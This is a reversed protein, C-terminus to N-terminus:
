NSTLAHPPPHYLTYQNRGNKKATYMAEDAKHLLDSMETGDRPFLSIGISTTIRVQHVELEFDRRTSNTIRQAAEIAGKEGNVSPLLVVFEDGGMRSVTDIDRLTHSLREAFAKLLDDGTLHGHTDNVLKFRDIDLYLLALQTNERRAQALAQSFRDIFLARNPLGTLHDHTAQRTVTEMNIKSETIDFISVIISSSQPVYGISVHSHIAEGNKKVLKIDYEDPAMDPNARRLRNYDMVRSIDEPDVFDKWGLKGEVEERSYGFMVEAKTNVVSVIMDGDVMIIANGSSEFISRYREVAQKLKKELVRRKDRENLVIAILSSLIVASIVFVLMRLIPNPYPSIFLARPLFILLSFLGTIIAGKVRYYYCAYIVPILFLARHFDHVTYFFDSQLMGWNFFDVVSSFYYFISLPAILTLLIYFHRDKILAKM